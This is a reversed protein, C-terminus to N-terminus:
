RAAEEDCGASDLHQFDKEWGLQQLQWRFYDNEDYGPPLPFVETSTEGRPRTEVKGVEATRFSKGPYDDEPYTRDPDKFVEPDRHLVVAGVALVFLFRLLIM